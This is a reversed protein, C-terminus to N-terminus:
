SMRGDDHSANARGISIVEEGVKRSGQRRCGKGDGSGELVEHVEEGFGEEEQSHRTRRGHNTEGETPEPFHGSPFSSDDDGVLIVVYKLIVDQGTFMLVLDHLFGM